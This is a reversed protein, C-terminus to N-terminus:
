VAWTTAGWAATVSLSQTVTRAAAARWACTRQVPLPLHNIFTLCSAWSSISICFKANYNASPLVALPGRMVLVLFHMRGYAPAHQCHVKELLLRTECRLHAASQGRQESGGCLLVHVDSVHGFERLEFGMCYQSATAEDPVLGMLCWGGADEEPLEEPDETTMIYVDDGVQWAPGGLISILQGVHLQEALRMCAGTLALTLRLCCACLVPVAYSASQRM